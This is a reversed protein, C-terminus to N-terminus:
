RPRSSLLAIVLTSLSWTLNASITFGGVVFHLIVPFIIFVVLQSFRFLYFRKRYAYILLNLIILLAVVAIPLSSKQDRVSYEIITWIPGLVIASLSLSVLVTKQSRLDADQLDGGITAARESLFNWLSTRM